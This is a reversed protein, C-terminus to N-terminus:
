KMSVIYERIERLFIILKESTKNEMFLRPQTKGQKEWEVNKM